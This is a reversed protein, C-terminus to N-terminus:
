TQATPTTPTPLAPVATARSFRRKRSDPNYEVEYGEEGEMVIKMTQPHIRFKKNRLVHSMDEARQQGALLNGM